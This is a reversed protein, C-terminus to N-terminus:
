KKNQGGPRGGDGSFGFVPEAAGFFQVIDLDQFADHIGRGAAPRLTDALLSAFGIEPLRIM